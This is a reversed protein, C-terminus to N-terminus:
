DGICYHTGDTWLPYRGMWDALRTWGPRPCTPAAPADVHPSGCEARADAPSCATELGLKCRCSRRCLCPDSAGACTAYCEELSPLPSRLPLPSYQAQSGSPGWLLAVCLVALVSLIIISKV